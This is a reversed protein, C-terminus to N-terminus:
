QKPNNSPKSIPNNTDPQHSNTTSIPNPIQITITITTSIQINKQNLELLNILLFLIKISSPISKLKYISKISLLNLIQDRIKKILKIM